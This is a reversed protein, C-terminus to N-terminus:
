GLVSSLKFMPLYMAVLIVGVIVGVSLTLAFNFVSTIIQGKHKVDASYQDFLKQFIFETKNTEEAVKLLAIMKSEYISHKSFSEHLKKGLILDKEIISLTKELPYFKIMGKVLQISRTVPVKANTLLSMAQTFQILYVKKLYKNLIPIRLQLHGIFKYYFSTNKFWSFFLLLLGILFLIVLGNENLLSSIKVIQQTIWPLEVKNQKFIDVFMPVVYRLMFFVVIIALFLVILPYSLSAVLQRRLENKRNFYIRLDEVIQSLKGTQEGIKIAQYEYATFSKNGKLADHLSSGDIIADLIKLTMEKQYQKTQNEIILELCSKLNIGSALLISLEAYFEEKAKNSFKKKFLVIDRNFISKETSATDKPNNIEKPIKIGM